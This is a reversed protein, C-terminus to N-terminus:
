WTDTIRPNQDVCIKIFRSCRGSNSFFLALAHLRPQFYETWSFFSELSEMVKAFAITHALTHRNSILGTVGTSNKNQDRPIFCHGHTQGAGWMFALSPVHHLAHDADPLPLAFGFLTEFPLSDKIFSSPSKWVQSEAGWDFLMSVCRCLSGALSESEEVGHDDGDCFCFKLLSIIVFLCRCRVLFGPGM